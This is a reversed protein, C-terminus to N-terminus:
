RPKLTVTFKYSSASSSAFETGNVVAANGMSNVQTMEISSESGLRLKGSVAASASGTSGITSAASAEFECLSERCVYRGSLPFLDDRSDSPAYTFTGNSRFTWSAGRIRRQISSVWQSQGSIQEFSKLEKTEFTRTRDFSAASAEGWILGGGLFVLLLIIATGINEKHTRM